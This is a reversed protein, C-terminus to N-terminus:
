RPDFEAFDFGDLTDENNDYVKLIAIKGAMAPDM